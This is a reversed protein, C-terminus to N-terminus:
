TRRFFAQGSFASAKCLRWRDLATRVCLPYLEEHGRSEMGCATFHPRQHELVEIGARQAACETLNETTNCTHDVM